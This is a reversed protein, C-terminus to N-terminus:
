QLDSFLNISNGSVLTVVAKKYSTRRGLFKSVRRFKIPTLLTNVDKVKVNFLYEIADRIDKKTSRSDVAFSYQNVELLKTAKDTILPYKILDALRLINM